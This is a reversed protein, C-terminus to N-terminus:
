LNMLSLLRLLGRGIRTPLGPAADHPLAAVVRGITRQPAAAIVLYVFGDASWAVSRDQSNDAYVRRGGVIAESWGGLRPPVHGRQVVLSVVSLGDSFDLDVVPGAATSSERAALLTLSSPLSRPLPWGLARLRALQARRLITGWPRAGAGPLGALAVRTITLEAFRADSILRGSIDFTQRRLPLSSSADLWFRAALSGDPRRATVVAARRGAVWGDGTVALRYNAGLLTVLRESMGPLQTGELMPTSGQTGPMIFRRVERSYDADGGVTKMLTQGGRAHWIEVASAGAGALNRWDLEELAQYSVSRCAQAAHDLLRLGAQQASGSPRWPAQTGTPLHHGDHPVLAFGTIVLGALVAVTIIRLAAPDTGPRPGSSAARAWTDPQPGTDPQSKM